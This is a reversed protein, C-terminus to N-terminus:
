GLNAGHALGTGIWRVSGRRGNVERGGTLEFDGTDSVVTTYSRLQELLNQPM